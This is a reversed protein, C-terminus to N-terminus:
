TTRGGGEAFRRPVTHMLHDAAEPVRERLAAARDEDLRGATVAKDIAGNLAEVVAQEVQDPDAGKSEAFAAITQGGRVADRLETVPVGIATAAARAAVRLAVRRARVPHETASAKPGADSGASPELAGAAGAAGVSLLWATTLAAILKKM